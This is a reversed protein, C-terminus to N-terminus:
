PDRRNLIEAVQGLLCVGSSLRLDIETPSQLRICESEPQELILFNGTLDGQPREMSGQLDEPLQLLRQVM